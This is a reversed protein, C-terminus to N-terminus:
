WGFYVVVRAAAKVDRLSIALPGQGWKAAFISSMLSQLVTLTVDQVAAVLKVLHLAQVM